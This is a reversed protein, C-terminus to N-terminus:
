NKIKLKSIIVEWEKNDSEHDYGLLHLLGHIFLHIIEKKLSVNHVKANRKATPVSIFIDGLQHPGITKEESKDLPFSLVDTPEDIQRYKKNLKQIAKNNILHLGIETNKSKGLKYVVEEAIKQFTEKSFKKRTKNEFYLRMTRNNSQKM